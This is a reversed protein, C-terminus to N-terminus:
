NVTNFGRLDLFNKSNQLPALGSSENKNYSKNFEIISVFRLKQPNSSLEVLLNNSSSNVVKGVSIGPPFKGGHGSTEIM